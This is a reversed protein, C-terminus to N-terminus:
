IRRKINEIIELAKNIAQNIQPQQVNVTLLAASIQNKITLWFFDIDDLVEVRNNPTAIAAQAEIQKASHLIIKEISKIPMIGQQPIFPNVSAAIKQATLSVTPM